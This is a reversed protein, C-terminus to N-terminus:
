LSFGKVFQAILASLGTDPPRKKIIEGYTKPGADKPTPIPRRRGVAWRAGAIAYRVIYYYHKNPIYQPTDYKPLYRGLGRDSPETKKLYPNSLAWEVGWNVAEEATVTPAAAEAFINRKKLAEVVAGVESHTANGSSRLRPGRRELEPIQGLRTGGTIAPSWVVGKLM